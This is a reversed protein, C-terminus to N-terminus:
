DEWSLHADSLARRNRYVADWSIRWSLNRSPVLSRNADWLCNRTGRLNSAPILPLRDGKRELNLITSLDSESRGTTAVTAGVAAMTLCAAFAGIFVALLAQSHRRM